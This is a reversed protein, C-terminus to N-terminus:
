EKIDKIYSSEPPYGPPVSKSFMVNMETSGIVSALSYRESSYVLLSFSIVTCIYTSTPGHVEGYKSYMVKERWNIQDVM